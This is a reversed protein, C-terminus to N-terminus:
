KRREANHRATFERMRQMHERWEREQNMDDTEMNEFLSPALEKISRVKVDKSFMASICESIQIAQLENFLAIERQKALQNRNHSDIIDKVEDLSSNWFLAISMGIDLASPYIDSIM